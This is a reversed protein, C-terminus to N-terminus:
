KSKKCWYKLEVNVKEPNDVTCEENGNCKVIQTQISHETTLEKIVILGTHCSFNFQPSSESLEQIEISSGAISIYVDFFDHFVKLYDFM